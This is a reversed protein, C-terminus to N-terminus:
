GVFKLLEELSEQIHAVDVFYVSVRVGDDSQYSIPETEKLEDELPYLLWVENARYKKAYAYMAALFVHDQKVDLNALGSCM